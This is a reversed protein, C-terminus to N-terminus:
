QKCLMIITQDQCICLDLNQILNRFFNLVETNFMDINYGIINVEHGVNHASFEIGPIIKVGKCPYLGEEYLHRIGDITDHDSIAIYTLGAKKAAAVIEEPSLRGDSFTTHVHLDSPM